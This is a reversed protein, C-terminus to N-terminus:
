VLAIIASIILGWVLIVVPLILVQVSAEPATLRGTLTEIGRHEFQGWTLARSDSPPNMRVWLAPVAFLITVFGVCIALPVVLGPNMLVLGMMALFGLYAAVTAAYLGTPLGFSRNVRTPHPANSVTAVRVLQDPSIHEAM